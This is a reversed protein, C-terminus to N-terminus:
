TVEVKMDRSLLESVANELEIDGNLVQWVQTCIPMDVGHRRAVRHLVQAAHFGEVAQGLEDM